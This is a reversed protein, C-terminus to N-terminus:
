WWLGEIGRPPCALIKPRLSIPLYVKFFCELLSHYEVWWRRGRRGNDALLAEGGAESTRQAIEEVGFTLYTFDNSYLM